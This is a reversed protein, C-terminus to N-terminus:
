DFVTDGDDEGTVALEVGFVEVVFVAGEVDFTEGRLAFEGEFEFVDVNIEVYIGGGEAGDGLVGEAERLVGCVGGVAADEDPEFGIRVVRAIEGDDARGTAAFGGEQLMESQEEGIAFGGDAVGGYQQEEAVV